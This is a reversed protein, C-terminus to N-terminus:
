SLTALTSGVLGPMFNGVLMMLIRLSCSLFTNCGVCFLTSKNRYRILVYVLLPSNTSSLVAPLMLVAIAAMRSPLLNRMTSFSSRNKLVPFFRISSSSFFGVNNQIVHKVNFTFTIAILIAFVHHPTM